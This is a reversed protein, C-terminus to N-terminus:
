MIECLQSLEKILYEPKYTELIEKRMFGHTIGVTKYGFKIGDLIDKGMDSIFFNENIDDLTINKLLEFKPCKAETTLIYKFFKILGLRELERCLAERSQRATLLI